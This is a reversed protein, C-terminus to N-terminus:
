FTILNGAHCKWGLLPKMGYKAHSGYNGDRRSKLINRYIHLNQINIREVAEKRTRFTLSKRFVENRKTYAGDKRTEINVLSKNIHQNIQWIVRQKDRLMQEKKRNRKLHKLTLSKPATTDVMPKQRLIRHHHQKIKKKRSKAELYRKYKSLMTFSKLQDHM